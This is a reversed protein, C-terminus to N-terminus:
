NIQKNLEIEIKQENLKTSYIPFVEVAGGCERCTEIDIGFVRKLRQVWNMAARRESPSPAVREDTVNPKNGKGRKAPTVAALHKSNPAFV